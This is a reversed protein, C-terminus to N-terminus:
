KCGISNCGPPQDVLHWTKNSYISDMEDNIAEQWFDANLSITVQLNLPDEEITFACFYSGFDKATREKKSRRPGNKSSKNLETRIFRTNISTARRNRL